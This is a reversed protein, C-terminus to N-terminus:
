SNKGRGRYTGVWVLENPMILLDRIDPNMLCCVASTVIFGTHQSHYNSRIPIYPSILISYTRIEAPCRWPGVGLNYLPGFGSSGRQLEKACFNVIYRRRVTARRAIEVTEAVEHTAMKDKMTMQGENGNKTEINATAAVEIDRVVRRRHGVVETTSSPEWSTILVKV